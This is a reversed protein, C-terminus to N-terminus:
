INTVPPVFRMMGDLQDSSVDLVNPANLKRAEARAENMLEKYMIMSAERGRRDNMSQYMWSISLEIAAQVASEPLDVSDDIIFTAGVVTEGEYVNYLYLETASIVQKVRYTLGDSNASTLQFLREEMSSTFTTGAGTVIESHNTMTVTGTSYSAIRGASRSKAQYVIKITHAQSPKPYISITNKGYELREEILFYVPFGQVATMSVIREWDARAVVQKMPLTYQSGTPELIVARIAGFDPPLQYVSQGTVLTTEQSKDSAFSGVSSRVISIANRLYGELMSRSATTSAPVRAQLSALVQTFTEM